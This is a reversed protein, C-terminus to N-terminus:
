SFVHLLPERYARVLREMPLDVVAVATGGARSAGGGSGGRVIRFGASAELVRGICAAPVDAEALARELERAREPAVEVLFRSLSESFLLAPAGGALAEAAGPSAELAALDIEAGLRGGIAMEAAALALGGESLDHCTAVLGRAIAAHLARFTRRALAFDAAPVVGAEASPVGRVLALHSGGLEVATRGVLYLLNGPRKLDSSVAAAADPM